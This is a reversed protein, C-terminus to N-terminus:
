ELNFVLRAMTRQEIPQGRFERPEFTWQGVAEMASQEFFNAPEARLIGINATEGTTTVTFEVEVWGSVNREQARGPYEAPTANLRVFESLLAVTSRERELLAQEFGARLTELADDAAIAGAALLM